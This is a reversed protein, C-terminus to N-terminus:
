FTITRGCRGKTGYYKGFPCEKSHKFLHETTITHPTSSEIITYGKDSYKLILHENGNKLFCAVKFECPCQLTIYTEM